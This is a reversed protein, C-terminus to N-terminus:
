FEKEGCDELGGSGFWGVGGGGLIEKCIEDCWMSNIRCRMVIIFNKKKLSCSSGEQSSQHFYLAFRPSSCTALFPNSADTPFLGPNLWVMSM